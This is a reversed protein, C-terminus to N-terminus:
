ENGFNTVGVSDDPGHIDFVVKLSIRVILIDLARKTVGSKNFDSEITICNVRASELFFQVINEARSKQKRLDKAYGTLCNISPM